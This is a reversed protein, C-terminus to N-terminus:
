LVSLYDLVKILDEQKKLNIEEKKLYEKLPKSYEPFSKAFTRKKLELKQPYQESDTLVYYDDYINFRAARDAQNPTTAKQAPTLVCRKKNLLTYKNNKYVEIFFSKITKNSDTLHYYPEITKGDLIIKIKDLKLIVDYKPDESSANQVNDERLVEIQDSYINYRLNHHGESEEGIIIEGQMFRDNLYPSGKIDSLKIPNSREQTNLKDRIVQKLRWSSEYQNQAGVVAQAILFDTCVLSSVIVLFVIKKM